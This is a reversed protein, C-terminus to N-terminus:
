KYRWRSSMRQDCEKGATAKM